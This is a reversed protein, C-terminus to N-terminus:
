VEWIGKWRLYPPYRNERCPMVERRISMEEERRANGMKTDPIGIPQSTFIGKFGDINFKGEM